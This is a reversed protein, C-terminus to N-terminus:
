GRTYFAIAGCSTLGVNFVRGDLPEGESNEINHVIEHLLEIEKFEEVLEGEANLIAEIKEKAPHAGVVAIRGGDTWWRLQVPPPVAIAQKGFVAQLKKGYAALNRAARLRVADLHVHTEDPKIGFIRAVGADLVSREQELQVEM